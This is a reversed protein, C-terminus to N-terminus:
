LESIIKKLFPVADKGDQESTPCFCFDVCWWELEGISPELARLVEKFDVHGQGFPTHTSTEDHHLTGDSDILHLHGIQGELLKAYEAVGGALTEQEGTQRSGVVAGMYAHSTDFLLKFNDHGVAGVIRLVENPKNLWFGPEFEWVLLVGAQRCAQAAARWTTALRNFRKEYEEDSHVVPPSITDVRLVTIELHNCFALCKEVEGLFKAEEVEAPPVTNFDAAYGSIGLGVGEIEKKLEACKEKSNYDDPHPYPRFGCIEVGDFGVDATYKLTKSFSWPDKEFPGFSFAWSGLSLKPRKM